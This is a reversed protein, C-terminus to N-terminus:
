EDHFEVPLEQILFRHKGRATLPIEEVPRLSLTVDSGLKEVVRSRMFALGSDNCGPRPVYNLTIRGRETQHFQFQRVCDFTTDHMNIATMSILRGTRTVVFEQLRGEIRDWVEYPRGCESCVSSKFVAYDRTRYRIMPTAYMLFSTAVIEGM